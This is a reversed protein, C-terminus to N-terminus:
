KLELPADLKFSVASEAPLVIDKNGTFAAGATGAGGGALAGIAAGKGGGALGGILAGVAAGGGALVATRKGKGKASQVIASTQISHAKGGVEISNLKLSLVAGGKFRGLPKADSVVGSARAGAPIATNGDVTIASTTTGTFPQGSESIKSGVAQDLRITMVTGTPVVVAMAKPAEKGPEIKPAPPKATTQGGAAPGPSTTTANSEPSQQQQDTATNDPNAPPPQKNCGALVTALAFILTLTLVRLRMIEETGSFTDFSDLIRLGVV